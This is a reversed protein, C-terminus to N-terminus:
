GESVMPHQKEILQGFKAPGHEVLQTLGEFVSLHPDVAGPL